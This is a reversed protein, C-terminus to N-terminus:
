SFFLITVVEESAYLITYIALSWLGFFVDFVLQDFVQIMACRRLEIILGNEDCIKM